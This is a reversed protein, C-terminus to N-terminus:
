RKKAIAVHRIICWYLRGLAAFYLLVSTLNTTKVRGRWHLIRMVHIKTSFDM